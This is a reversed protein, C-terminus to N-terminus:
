SYKVLIGERPFSLASRAKPGPTPLAADRSRKTEGEIQSLRSLPLFHTLSLASFLPSPFPLHLWSFLSLLYLHSHFSSLSFSLSCLCLPLYFVFIPLSHLSSLSPSPSCRLRPASPPSSWMGQFPAARMGEVGAMTHGRRRRRRGASAKKEEHEHAM